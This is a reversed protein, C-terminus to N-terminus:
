IIIKRLVDFRMTNVTFIAYPLDINCEDNSYVFAGCTPFNIVVSFAGDVVSALFKFLRGDNRRIPLAFDQNPIALTGTITINTEEYMTAITFDGTHQVDGTMGSIVIEIAEPIVPEDGMFRQEQWADVAVEQRYWEGISPTDDVWAGDVKIQTRM